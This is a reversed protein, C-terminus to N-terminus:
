CCGRLLKLRGLPWKGGWQVVHEEERRLRLSFETDWDVSEQVDCSIMIQSPPSPPPAVVKVLTKADLRAAIVMVVTRGNACKGHATPSLSLEWSDIPIVLTHCRYHRFNGSLRISKTKLLNHVRHPVTIMSASM